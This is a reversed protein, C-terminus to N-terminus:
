AGVLSPMAVTYLGTKEQYIKIIDERSVEPNTDNLLEQMEAFGTSVYYQSMIKQAEASKVEALLEQAMYTAILGVCMAFSEGLKLSEERNTDLHRLQYHMTEQGRRLKDCDIIDDIILIGSHFLEVAIAAAEAESTNTGEYFEHQALVLGGRVGKGATAFAQLRTIIDNSLQPYCGKKQELFESVLTKAKKAYAKLDM